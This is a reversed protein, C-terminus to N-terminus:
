VKLKTNNKDSKKRKHQANNSTNITLESKNNNNNPTYLIDKEIIYMVFQMVNMMVELESYGITIKNSVQVFLYRQPTIVYNFENIKEYKELISEISEYPIKNIKVNVKAIMGSGVYKLNSTLFGFKKDYVYRVKSSMAESIRLLADFKKYFNERPHTINLIFKIHDNDNTIAFIDDSFFKIVSKGKFTNGVVTFPMNNENILTIASKQTDGELSYVTGYPTKTKDILENLTDLIIKETLFQNEQKSIASSHYSFPFNDIDYNRILIVQFNSMRDFYEQNMSLSSISNGKEPKNIHDKIDVNFKQYRFIYNQILPYFSSYETKDHIIIDNDGSRSIVDNINESNYSLKYILFHYVDNYSKKIIDNPISSILTEISIKNKEELSLIGNISYLFDNLFLLTSRYKLKYGMEINLTDYQDKSEDCILSYKEFKQKNMFEEFTLKSIMINKMTKNIKFSSAIRMGAGIHGLETTLYGYSDDVALMLQLGIHKMISIAKNYQKIIDFTDENRVYVTIHDIFNILMVVKKDEAIFIYRGNPFDKNMKLENMKNMDFKIEKLINETEEKDISNDCSLLKGEPLIKKEKLVSIKEIIIAAIDRRSEISLKLNFPYGTLNRYFIFDFSILKSIMEKNIIPENFGEIIVDNSEVDFGKGKEVLFHHLDSILPRFLKDFVVFCDEENAFIGIPDKPFLDNLRTLENLNTDNKTKSFKIANYVLKDLHKRLYSHCSKDYQPFTVLPVGKPYPPPIKIGFMEKEEDTIIKGLYKIMYLYPSKEKNHIVSNVMENLVKNIEHKAIYKKIKQKKEEKDVNKNNKDM